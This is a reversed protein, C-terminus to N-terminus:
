WYGKKKTVTEAGKHFVVMHNVKIAELIETRNTSTSFNCRHCSWNYKHPGLVKDMLNLIVIVYLVSSIDLVDWGTYHHIGITALQVVLMIVFTIGFQKLSNAM